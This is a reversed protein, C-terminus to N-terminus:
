RSRQRSLREVFRIHARVNDLLDDIARADEPALHLSHRRHILEEYQERGRDLVLRITTLEDRRTVADLLASAQAADLAFQDVIHRASREM